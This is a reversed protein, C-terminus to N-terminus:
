QSHFAQLQIGKEGTTLAANGVANAERRAAGLVCALPNKRVRQAFRERVLLKGNGHTQSKAQGRERERQRSDTGQASFMSVGPMRKRARGHTPTRDSGAMVTAHLQQDAIRAGVADQCAELGLIHARANGVALKDERPFHRSDVQSTNVRKGGGVEAGRRCRALGNLPSPAGLVEFVIRVRFSNVCRELGENNVGEAGEVLVEDFEHILNFFRGHPAQALRRQEADCALGEEGKEGRLPL